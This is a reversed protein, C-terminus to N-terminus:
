LGPNEYEKFPHDFIIEANKSARQYSLVNRSVGLLKSLVTAQLRKQGRRTPLEAKIILKKLVLADGLLFKILALLHKSEFSNAEFGIIEVRRLHKALCELNGKRSCLFEEEDFNFRDKSEEDLWGVFRGTGTLHIVLKELCQSSQLLYAIGPLDWQSVLAHLTLNQCKSLPSPVGDVELLSLVQLCWGGMTITSVGRLEEFFERLLDRHTRKDGCMSFDLKAEVLSSIEDLRFMSHSDLMGSVRLSLLHPAWIKGMNDFKPSHLVLEKVSRSDIIINKMGSCDLLKLSELVPSGRSDIIINKMGSCDLLKLSELVPSGRVIGDLIDDSLEVSGIVLVKLCPWRITTGLSFCCNVVELRVVRSLRNLFEPLNYFGKLLDCLCLFLDEVRREEAFRLWDDVKPSDAEKYIIHLRKVQKSACQRM